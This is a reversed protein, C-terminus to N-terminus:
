DPGAFQFINPLLSDRAYIAVPSRALNGASTPSAIGTLPREGPSMGIRVRQGMPIGVAPGGSMLQASVSGAMNTISMWHDVSAGSTPLWVPREDNATNFTLQQSNSGDVNMIFLENDGDRDSTFLLKSGDPSWSPAWDTGPSYTLQRLNGGNTDILYLEWDGTRNSSFAITSGDPSWAPYRDEAVDFTLRRRNTGDARMLYIERNGDLTSYFALQSSDPSWVPWIDEAADNTLNVQGGGNANMVYIDRNGTANSDYAIRSGDPSWAPHGAFAGDHTLQEAIGSATNMVFIETSGTRDSQFALRTGDPSYSAHIDGASNATLQVANNQGTELTFIEWDGDRNSYFAMPVDPPDMTILATSQLEIRVGNVVVSGTLGDPHQVVLAPPTDQCLQDMGLQVTITPDGPSSPVVSGDGYLLLTMVTNAATELQMIATGPEFQQTEIRSLDFVGVADGPNRFQALAPTTVINPNGHCVQNRPVIGCVNGTENLIQTVITCDGNGAWVAPQSGSPLAWCVTIALLTILILRYRSM